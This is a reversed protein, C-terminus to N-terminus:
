QLSIKLSFFAQCGVFVMLRKNTINGVDDDVDGYSCSMDGNDFMEYDPLIKLRAM